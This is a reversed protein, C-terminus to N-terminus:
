HDRAPHPLLANRFFPQRPRRARALGAGPAGPAAAVHATMPQPPAFRVREPMSPTPPSEALTALTRAIRGIAESLQVLRSGDALGAVDNLRSTRTTCAMAVAAIVEAPGPQCLIQVDSHCAAGFATDLLSAPLM